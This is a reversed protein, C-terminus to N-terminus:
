VVSHTEDILIIEPIADLKQEPDNETQIFIVLYFLRDSCDECLLCM